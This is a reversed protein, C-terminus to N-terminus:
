GGGPFRLGHMARGSPRHLVHGPQGTGGGDGMFTAASRPHRSFVSVGAAAAAHFSLFPSGLLLGFTELALLIVTSPPRKNEHVPLRTIPHAPFSIRQASPKMCSSCHQSLCM